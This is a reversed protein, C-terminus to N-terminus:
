EREEIAIIERFLSWERYVWSMARVPVMMVMNQAKSSVVRSIPTGFLLFFSLHLAAM